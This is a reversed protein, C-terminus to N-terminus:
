IDGFAANLPEAILGKGKSRSAREKKDQPALPQLDAEIQAKLMELEEMTGHAIQVIEGAPNVELALAPPRLGFAGDVFVLNEVADFDVADVIVAEDGRNRRVVRIVRVNMDVHTETSLGKKAVLYLMGAIAFFVATVALRFPLMEAASTSGPMLWMLFAGAGFVLSALAAIGEGKDAWWRARAGRDIVYGWFTSQIVLTQETPKKDSAAPETM